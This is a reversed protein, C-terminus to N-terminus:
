PVSALSAPDGRCVQRLRCHDVMDGDAHAVEVPRPAEVIGHEARKPEGRQAFVGARDAVAFAVGLEPDIVPRSEGRRVGAHMDAQARGTGLGDVGEM